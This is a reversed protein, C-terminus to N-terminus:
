ESTNESSKESGNDSTHKKGSKQQKQEKNQEKAHELEKTHEKAHEKKQVKAMMTAPVVFLYDRATELDKGDASYVAQKQRLEKLVGSSGRYKGQILYVPVGSKLQLVEKIELSPLSLIVSDGIAIKQESVINKGDHLHYQMKGKPLVTKGIVKCVKQTSDSKSIEEVIIRGKADFTITYSKNVKPITIIDFLGVHFRYDKRPFGDVLVPSSTLSKKVERMTSTLSLEDRVIMGLPLGNGIVHGSPKPRVTFTREKRDIVWSKPAPIRKLHNKM